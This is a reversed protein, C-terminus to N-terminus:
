TRQKCGTSSVDAGSLKKEGRRKIGRRRTTRRGPITATAATRV